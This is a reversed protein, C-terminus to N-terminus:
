YKPWRIHLTSENSFARINPFISPLLLLTRCLILHSSPMVTEIAMLKFLSQSNTISLSAQRTAIWPTAFLRVRSLSQVSSFQVSRYTPFNLSCNIDGLSTVRAEPKMSWWPTQPFLIPWCLIQPLFFVLHCHIFESSSYCNWIKWFIYVEHNPLPHPLNIPPHYDHPYLKDLSFIIRLMTNGVSQWDSLEGQVDSFFFCM